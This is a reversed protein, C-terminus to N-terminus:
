PKGRKVFVVWVALGVMFLVSATVAITAPATMPAGTPEHQEIYGEYDDSM